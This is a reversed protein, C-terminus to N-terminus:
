AAARVCHHRSHFESVACLFCAANNGVACNGVVSVRVFRGPVIRWFSRLISSVIWKQPRLPRTANPIGWVKRGVESM